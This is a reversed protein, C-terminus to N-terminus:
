TQQLSRSQHEEHREGGEQPGDHIADDPRERRAEAVLQGVYEAGEGGGQQDEREGSAVVTMFRGEVVGGCAARMRRYCKARTPEGSWAHDEKSKTDFGGQGDFIPALTLSRGPVQLVSRLGLSLRGKVSMAVISAKKTAYDAPPINPTHAVPIM